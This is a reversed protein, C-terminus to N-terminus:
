PKDRAPPLSVPFVLPCVRFIRPTQRGAFSGPALALAGAVAAEAILVAAIAAVAFAISFSAAIIAAAVVPTAAFVDAAERNSRPRQM